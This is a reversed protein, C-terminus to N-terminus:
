VIVSYDPNKNSYEDVVIFSLRLNKRKAYTFSDLLKESLIFLSPKFYLYSFYGKTRRGKQGDTRGDTRGEKRVM